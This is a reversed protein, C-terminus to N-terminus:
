ENVILQQANSAFKQYDLIMQDFTGYVDLHDPDLSTILAIYPQLRLFSKDYEDAEVVIFEANNSAIINTNYNTMIGGVFGSVSGHVKHLIHTLFASTTTKGHTGSIAIVKSQSTIWQLVESRKHWVGGANLVHDFHPHSKPIAPTYVFLDAKLDANEPQADFHVIIGEVELDKTIRSPTKDYGSVIAGQMKFYRALASMGVGGIGLFYVRKVTQLNM